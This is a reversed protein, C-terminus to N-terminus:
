VNARDDQLSRLEGIGLMRSLHRRQLEAVVLMRVPDRDVSGALPAVRGPTLKV